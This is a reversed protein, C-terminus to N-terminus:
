RLKAIARELDEGRIQARTASEVAARREAELTDLAAQEPLERRRHALGTLRLDLDALDVLRRQLHPDAKM